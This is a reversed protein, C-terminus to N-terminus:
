SSKPQGARILKSGASHALVSAAAKSNPGWQIVPTAKVDSRWVGNVKRGSQALWLFSEYSKHMLPEEESPYRHPYIRTKTLGVYFWM